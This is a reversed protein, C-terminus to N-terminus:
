VQGRAVFIAGDEGGFGPQFRDREFAAVGAFRRTCRIWSTACDLGRGYLPLTATRARSILRWWSLSVWSSRMALPDGRGPAAIKESKQAAVAIMVGHIKETIGLGRDMVDRELHHRLARSKRAAAMADPGAAAALPTPRRYAMECFFEIVV